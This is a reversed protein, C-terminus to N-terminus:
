HAATEVRDVRVVLLNMLTADPVNPLHSAPPPAQALVVYSGPDVTINTHLQPISRDAAEQTTNSYQVKLTVKGTTAAMAHFSFKHGRATTMGGGGASADSHTPADVLTLATDELAFHSPGLSSRLEQLAGHLPNLAAADNGAGAKAQVIWFRVRLPVSDPVRSSTKSMKDIASEISSQLSAPALVMLTGPFPQTVGASNKGSGALLEGLAGEIQLSQQVPVKYLKLEMNSSHAPSGGSGNCGALVLALLVSGLVRLTCKMANGWPWRIATKERYVGSCTNEESGRWLAHGCAEGRHDGLERWYHTWAPIASGM